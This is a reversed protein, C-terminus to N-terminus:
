QASVASGIVFGAVVLGVTTWVWWERRLLKPAVTCAALPGDVSPLPVQVPEAATGVRGLVAGSPARAELYLHLAPSHQPPAPLVLSLPQDSSLTSVLHSPPEGTQGEVFVPVSDVADRGDGLQLLLLLRQSPDRRLSFELPVDLKELPGQKVRAFAADVAPGPDPVRRQHDPDRVLLQQLTKRARLEKREAIQGIAFLELADNRERASLVGHALLDTLLKEAADFQARELATKAQAL